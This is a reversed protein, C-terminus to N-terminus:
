IFRVLLQRKAEIMENKTKFNPVEKYSYDCYKNSQLWNSAILHLDCDPTYSTPNLKPSPDTVEVRYEKHMKKEYYKGLLQIEQKRINELETKTKIRSYASPYEPYTSTIANFEENLIVNGRKQVIRFSRNIGSSECGWVLKDDYGLNIAELANAKERSNLKGDKDVDFLKSLYYDKGNVVGDGDLDYSIDPLNEQKRLEILETRTSVKPIKTWDAPIQKPSSNDM